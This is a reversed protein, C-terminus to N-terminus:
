KVSKIDLVPTGDLMDLGKVYITSGERKTVALVSIGIPNPRVPSRTTFVGRPRDQRPPTVRLREDTFQPSKHFQFVVLIEQGGEIELLGPLYQEDIILRGEIDSVTYFNPVAEADTSVYGIPHLNIGNNRM